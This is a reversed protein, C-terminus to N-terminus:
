EHQFIERSWAYCMFRADSTLWRQAYSLDYLEKHEFFLKKAYPLKVERVAENLLNLLRKEKESLQIFDADEKEKAIVKVLEKTESGLLKFNLPETIRNWEKLIMSRASSYQQKEMFNNLSYVVSEIKM